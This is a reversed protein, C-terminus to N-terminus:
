KTLEWQIIDAHCCRSNSITNDKESGLMVKNCDAIVLSNEEFCFM